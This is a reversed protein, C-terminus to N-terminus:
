LPLQFGNVLPLLARTFDNWLGTAIAVGIVVLLVGGVVQMVRANRKLFALAGTARRFLLGVLIFPVGLGLAYVFSLVGGRLALGGSASASLTIIASLTPGTCPTWAIGFIFGLVPAGALGTVPPHDAVRVERMLRGSAMLVGMAAVFVGMAVLVWTTALMDYFLSIAVGGLAFPLAFGVVFLVSGLLVRSRGRAGAAALEEGSLGTMYSLYGPVLPLVCPSAFSIVGAVLAIAGALLLNADAVAQGAQQGVSQALVVVLSASTM